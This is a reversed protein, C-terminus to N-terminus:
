KETFYESSKNKEKSGFGKVKEIMSSKNNSIPPTSFLNSGTPIKNGSRASYCLASDKLVVRNWLM